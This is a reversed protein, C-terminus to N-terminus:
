DKIFLPLVLGWHETFSYTYDALEPKFFAGYCEKERSEPARKATWAYFRLGANTPIDEAVPTKIGLAPFVVTTTKRTNNWFEDATPIEDNSYSPDNGVYRTTIKLGHLPGDALDKIKIYEYRFATRMKNDTEVNNLKCFRLAYLVNGVSKYSSFVDRAQTAEGQEFQVKEKWRVPNTTSFPVASSSFVTAWEAPEPVYYSSTNEPSSFGFLRKADSYNYHIGSNMIETTSAFTTPDILANSPQQMVKVIYNPAGTTTLKNLPSLSVEIDVGMPYALGRAFSKTRVEPKEKSPGAQSLDYGALVVESKFGGEPKATEPRPMGWLVYKKASAAAVSASRSITEEVADAKTFTWSPTDTGLSYDFYGNNSVANSYITLEASAVPKSTNNKVRVNLLTGQPEFQVSIKPATQGSIKSVTFGTWGFTFPVRAQHPKLANDLAADSGFDVRTKDENLKGGGTVGAIFWQEGPQPQALPQSGSQELTLTHGKMKLQIKGGEVRADWDIMAYAQKTGDESRLFCHTKWDSVGEEHMTPPIDEDTDFSVARMANTGVATGELSLELTISNAQTTNSSIPEVAEKNCGVLALSGVLPLFLHKFNM